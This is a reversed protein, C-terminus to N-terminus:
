HGFAIWAFNESHAAVNFFADFGTPSYNQCRYVPDAGSERSTAVVLDTQTPFPTPYVVSVIGGGSSTGTQVGFKLTDEALTPNPYTGALVGGAPAGSYLWYNAIFEFNEQTAEDKLAPQPFLVILSPDLPTLTM